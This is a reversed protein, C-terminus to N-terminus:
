DLVALADRSARVADALGAVLQDLSRYPLEEREYCRGWLTRARAGLRGVLRRVLESKGIGSPGVIEVVAAGEGAEVGTWVAELADLDSTRGVFPPVWGTARRPRGAWDLVRAMTWRHEPRRRLLGDVLEAWPTSLGPRAEEIPVVDGAIHATWPDDSTAFPSQGTLAEYIMVGIAFSDTPPGYDGDTFAEPPLYALTGIVQDPALSGVSASLGFDLVHVEDDASVLVNAPKLDLHWLGVDHMRAVADALRAVLRRAAADDAVPGTTGLKAALARDFWTGDVFPMVVGLHEDVEVIEDPPTLGPHSLDALVRAEEKFWRLRGRAGPRVLKVAVREGNDLDRAGFVMGSSGEGVEDTLLYNRMLLPARRGM